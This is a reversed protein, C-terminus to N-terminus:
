RTRGAECIEDEEFLVRHPVTDMRLPKSYNTYDVDMPFPELKGLCSEFPNDNGLRRGAPRASHKPASPTSPCVFAKSLGRQSPSQDDQSLYIKVMRGRKERHPTRFCFHTQKAITVARYLRKCVLSVFRLDDHELCCVIRLLLDFPLEELVSECDCCEEPSTLSVNALPTGKPDSQATPNSWTRLIESASARQAASPSRDLCSSPTRPYAFKKRPSFDHELSDLPTAPSNCCPLEFEQSFDDVGLIRKRGITTCSSTRSLTRREILLEKSKQEVGRLLMPNFSRQKCLKANRQGFCERSARICTNKQSFSRQSRLFSKIQNVPREKSLCELVGGVDNAHSAQVRLCGLLSDRVTQQEAEANDTNADEAFTSFSACIPPPLSQRLEASNQCELWSSSSSSSSSSSIRASRRLSRPASSKKASRCQSM